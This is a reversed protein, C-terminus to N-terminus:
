SRFLTIPEWLLRTIDSPYLHFYCVVYLFPCFSHLYTFYYLGGGLYTKTGFVEIADLVISLTVNATDDTVNNGFIDRLQVWAQQETGAVVNPSMGFALSTASNLPAPVVELPHTPDSTPTGDVAVNITYNGSLTINYSALHRGTLPDFAVEAPQLLGNGAISITIPTSVNATVNNGFVDRLQVWFSDITGATVQPVVGYPFSTAPDPDAPIVTLPYSGAGIRLSSGLTLNVTATGSITANVYLKYLGEGSYTITGSQLSSDAQILTIVPVQGSATISDRIDTL